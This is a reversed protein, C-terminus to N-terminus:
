PYVVKTFGPNAPFECCIQLRIAFFLRMKNVISLRALPQAFHPTETFAYAPWSGQRGYRDIERLSNKGAPPKPRRPRVM